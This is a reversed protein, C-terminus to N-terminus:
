KTAYFIRQTIKKQAQYKKDGLEDDVKKNNSASTSFVGTRTSAYATFSESSYIRTKQPILKKTIKKV